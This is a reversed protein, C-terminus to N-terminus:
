PTSSKGRPWWWVLAACTFLCADKVLGGFPDHLAPPNTWIVLVMLVLVSLSAVLAAAREWIGSMIALGAPIMAWGLWYLTQEPSGWWWGSRRVMEIDMASPFLVKPMLGEWVWVLGVSLRATTKIRGLVRWEEPSPLAKLDERDGETKMTNM